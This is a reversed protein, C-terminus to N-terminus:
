AKRNMSSVVPNRRSRLRKLLSRCSLTNLVDGTVAWGRRATAVGDEM